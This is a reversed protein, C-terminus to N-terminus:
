QLCTKCNNCYTGIYGDKCGGTCEGGVHNCLVNNFFVQKLWRVLTCTTVPLFTKYSVILVSSKRNDNTRRLYEEQTSYVCHSKDSHKFFTVKHVVVGQKCIKLLTRINLVINYNLISM